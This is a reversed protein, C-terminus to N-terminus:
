SPARDHRDCRRAPADLTAPVTLPLDLRPTHGLQRLHELLREAHSSPVEFRLAASEHLLLPSVCWAGSARLWDALDQALQERETLM